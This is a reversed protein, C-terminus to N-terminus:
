MLVIVIEVELEIVIETITAIETIIVIEVIALIEIMIAIVKMGNPYGQNPIPLDQIPLQFELQLKLAIILEVRLETSITYMVLIEFKVLIAVVVRM